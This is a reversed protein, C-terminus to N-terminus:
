LFLLLLQGRRCGNLFVEDKTLYPVCVKFPMIKLVQYIYSFTLGVGYTSTQGIQAETPIKLQVLALGTNIIPIFM